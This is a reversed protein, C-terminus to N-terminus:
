KQGKKPIQSTICHINGGGVLICRSKIPIIKKNSFLNSLIEVALHDNVDGFQPVLVSGNTIYFNVYSAALREGMTREAEGMEFNYGNIDKETILIPSPLPLKHISLHRGKADTTNELVKLDALSMEYQPDNKNETFALVVEGPKTFACINDIHGNTEDNYIGFPLWLIKEAGLYKILVNEIEKKSLHPNRGKSLLCSETVLLTGEGDSHVSGGELVFNLTHLDYYNYNYNNCFSSALADDKDYSPLLGDYSGGWANFVWDTGRITKGDTLFIPSTDRAWADDTLLNVIEINRLENESFYSSLETIHANDCILFVKEYPLINKIIEAFASKAEICDYTFSGSRTPWIMITGLHPSFEAPMHFGDDVPISNIIM